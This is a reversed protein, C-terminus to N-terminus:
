KHWSHDLRRFISSSMVGVFTVSAQSDQSSGATEIKQGGFETALRRVLAGRRKMFVGEGEDVSARLPPGPCPLLIEALSLILSKHLCQTYSLANRGNALVQGQM